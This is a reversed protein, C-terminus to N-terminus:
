RRRRAVLLGGLGALAAAGPAPVASIGIFTITGDWTGSANGNLYGNGIWLDGTTTAMDIPTTLSVSGISTTGDDAAAGNPWSYRETAGLNSFGGIQFIGGTSLPPPDLYVTLDDAYTSAVSGSFVVDIAVSTLTGTFSGAAGVLSFQGGTFTAGTLTVTIDASATQALGAAAAVAACALLRKM